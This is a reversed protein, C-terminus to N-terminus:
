LPGGLVLIIIKNFVVARLIKILNCDNMSVIGMFSVSHTVGEPFYPYSYRFYDYNNRFV